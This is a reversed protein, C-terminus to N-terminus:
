KAAKGAPDTGQSASRWWRCGGPEPGGAGQSIATSALLSLPPHLLFSCPDEAEERPTIEM